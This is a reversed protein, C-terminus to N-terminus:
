RNVNSFLGLSIKDQTNPDTFGDIHVTNSSVRIQEGVRTNLEYYSITAWHKCPVFPVPVRNIFNNEQSKEYNGNLSLYDQPKQDPSFFKPKSMDLNSSPMELFYFYFILMFIFFKCLHDFMQLFNFIKCLKLFNQM